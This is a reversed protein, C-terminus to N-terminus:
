ARPTRKFAVVWVWENRAWATPYISDLLGQFAATPSGYWHFSGPEVGTPEVGGWLAQGAAERRMIGEALVDAATICRVQEAHLSEVVLRLAVDEQVQLVQGPKGYPCPVLPLSTGAQVDEFVAGEEVLGQYRYRSPELQMPLDLPLRRRTQTKRGGRVAALMAPNFSILSM